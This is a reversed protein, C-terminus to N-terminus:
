GPPYSRTALEARLRAVKESNPELKDAHDLTKQALDYRKINM